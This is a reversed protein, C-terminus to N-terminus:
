GRQACALVEDWSVAGARVLRPFSGTVDVITSPLGGPTRGADLLLDIRMGVTREVEDPDGPAPEGSINASTATLPSACALCVARAVHHAPVRVGVRGTGGTVAAALTAPAELLVTLPGPWFARALLRAMPPLPGIGRAIQEVDAAILPLARGGSRGKAAVVRAVADARFPDVALGYLTDTPVAVLGGSRILRAAEALIAPDPLASDILRRIM